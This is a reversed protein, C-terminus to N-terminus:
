IKLQSAGKTLQKAKVRQIQVTAACKGEDMELNLATEYWHGGESQSPNSSSKVWLKRKDFASHTHSKCVYVRKSAGGGTMMRWPTTEAGNLRVAVDVDAWSSYIALLALKPPAGPTAGEREEQLVSAVL